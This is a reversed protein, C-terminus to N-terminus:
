RRQRPVSALVVEEAADVVRGHSESRPDDREHDAEGPLTSEPRMASTSADDTPAIVM